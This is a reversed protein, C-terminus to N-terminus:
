VPWLQVRADLQEEFSVAEQDGDAYTGWITVRGDQGEVPTTPPDALVMPRDAWSITMGAELKNIRKTPM